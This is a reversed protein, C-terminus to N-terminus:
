ATEPKSGGYEVLMASIDDEIKDWPCFRGLQQLVDDLFAQGPAPGARTLLRALGAEGLMANDPGTCETVGDSYLLLRDGPRLRVEFSTWRAQPLLGVPLGGQGLFAVAGDRRILAPHPHGAQVLRLRGTDTEFTGYVMTFYQDVGLGELLRANLSDTVAEPPRLAHGGDPRRELAINQGPDVGNFYGALRATMLASTIGHGSVDINYFGIRDRGARFMGVLDGGVHGCPRLLVSVQTNGFWQSCEPMLSQQIKRAQKLDHDIADYLGQLEDLAGRIIRNKDTLQRQMRLIRGGAAIRARLESSNVPKTLFDDAGADLGLAVEEKASKSTLLIFYGYSERPMRKFERCFDLGSMGPMMWDSLVLDPPWDACIELAQAGSEADRLDYGLQRLSTRLIRRQAHSDDVVLIRRLGDAETRTTAGTGPGIQELATVTVVM